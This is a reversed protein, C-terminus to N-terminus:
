WLVKVEQHRQGVIVPQLNDRQRHPFRINAKPCRSDQKTQVGIAGRLRSDQCLCGSLSSKM